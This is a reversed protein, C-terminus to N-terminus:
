GRRRGRRVVVVLAAGLALALALGGVLPVRWAGERRPAAAGPVPASSAGTAAAVPGQGPGTVAEVDALLGTAVPATGGCLDAWLAEGRQKAVVVYARGPELGELGCSAGDKASGVWATTPASGEYVRSVTFRYSRAPAGTTPESFGRPEAVHELTGRMVVEARDVAQAATVAVCSCAWAPSTPLVLLAAFVV